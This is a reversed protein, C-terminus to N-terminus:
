IYNFLSLGSVAKFSKQAADLTQQQQTFDSIAKAMDLDQLTSLTSAYQVNKDDGASDLYDLEKLRAGVSARVSLVNDLAAGLNDSATNLGNTLTAKDAASIAPKRLTNLLDTMTTFVSQKQSPKVSFSDGAAPTGEIDFSMGDFAIQQGSQYPVASSVVTPTASAPDKVIDYTTVPPTGTMSFNIAYDSGTLQAPNTVSGTTIIGSGTNTGAAQTQFTGNGTANNEFIASGSDTIPMTRSSDVQLMRQGQDGNYAAGASTQTFPQTSAKYGSFLFGGVGDATNAVGLLDTLRGQLETAISQRDEQTMGGNGAAVVLSQVQQILTTASSLAGEVESLSSRANDRNTGYQTNLSQSQTVELARASAVPDDAPTLIRKDTSLQNQTRALNSQLNNFQNVNNDYISKTSIRM